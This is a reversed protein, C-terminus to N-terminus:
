SSIKKTFNTIPEHKEEKKTSPSPSASNATPINHQIRCQPQLRETNIDVFEHEKSSASFTGLLNLLSQQGDKPM